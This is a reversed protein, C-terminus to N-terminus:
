REGTQEGGEWSIRHFVYPISGSARPLDKGEEAPKETAGPGCGCQGKWGGERPM